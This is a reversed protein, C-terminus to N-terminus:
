MNSALIGHYAAIAEDCLGPRKYLMALCFHTYTPSGNLSAAALYQQCAEAFIGVLEAIMGLNFHM